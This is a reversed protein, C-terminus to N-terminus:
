ELKFRIPLTYRVKVPKGNVTGPNWRPMLGIVRQCEDRIGDCIGRLLSVQAISGDKDVVFQVLATGSIENERAKAPYRINAALFKMLSREGCQGPGAKITPDCPFSPPVEVSLTDSAATSVAPKVTGDPNYYTVQGTKEGGKYWTETAKIGLSDLDTWLGEMQGDVYAGFSVPKGNQRISYMKWEGVKKGRRYQGEKWKAGNDFWEAAYGDPVSLSRDAYSMETIKQGSEFYYTKLIYHLDPTQEVTRIPGAAILKNGPAVRNKYKELYIADGRTTKGTGACGAAALCLLLLLNKQMTYM